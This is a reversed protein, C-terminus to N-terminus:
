LCNHFYGSPTLRSSCRPKWSTAFTYVIYSLAHLLFYKSNPHNGKCCSSLYSSCNAKQILVTTQNKLSYLYLLLDHWEVWHAGTHRGRVWLLCSFGKGCGVWREEMRVWKLWVMGSCVQFAEGLLGQVPSENSEPRQSRGAEWLHRGPCWRVGEGQSSKRWLM